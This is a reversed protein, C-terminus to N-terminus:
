GAFRPQLLIARWLGVRWAGHGGEGADVVLRARCGSAAMSGGSGVLSIATARLTPTLTIRGSCMVLPLPM